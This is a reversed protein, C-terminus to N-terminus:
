DLISHQLELATSPSENCVPSNILYTFRNLICDIGQKESGENYKDPLGRVKILDLKEGQETSAMSCSFLVSSVCGYHSSGRCIKM